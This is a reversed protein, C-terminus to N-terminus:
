ADVTRWRRTAILHHHLDVLPEGNEGRHHRVWTGDPTLWWSATTDSM